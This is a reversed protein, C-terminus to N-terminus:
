RRRGYLYEDHDEAINTKPGSRPVLPFGRFLPDAPDVTDPFLRERIAARVWEQMTKGEARASRKLFEFEAEPVRAQVLKM